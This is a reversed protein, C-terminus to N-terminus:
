DLVPHWLIKEIKRTDGYTYHHRHPFGTGQSDNSVAETGGIFFGIHEHNAQNEWIIVAGPRLDQIEQWGHELLDKEASTVRARVFGVWAPKGIMDLLQNHLYLVSSVFSACSLAGDELVDQEVGDRKIYFNRFLWNEGKAANEIMSLYNKKLVHEIM